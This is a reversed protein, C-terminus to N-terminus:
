RVVGGTRAVFDIKNVACYEGENYEAEAPASCEVSGSITGEKEDGSQTGLTMRIYYFTSVATLETDTVDINSQTEIAFNYLALENNGAGLVNTFEGPRGLIRSRESVNEENTLRCLAKNPDPTKVFRVPTRDHAGTEVFQIPYPGRGDEGYEQTSTAANYGILRPNYSELAAGTNWAYSYSGTCLRGGAQNSYYDVERGQLDSLTEAEKMEGTVEDKYQLEFADVGAVSQQMDRVVTRSVQNVEKLTLGRNYLGMIQMIILAIIVLLSGVFGMALMLEVLTFGRRDTRKNLQYM